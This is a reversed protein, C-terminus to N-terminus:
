AHWLLGYVSLPYGMISRKPKQFDMKQAAQKEKSPPHKAPDLEGRM